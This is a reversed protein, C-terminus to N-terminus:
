TTKCWQAFELEARLGTFTHTRITDAFPLGAKAMDNIDKPYERPWIVVSEHLRVATRMLRVVERNRPENDWCFVLPTSRPLVNAGFAVQVAGYLDSGMAALTNPLFFSDLPGEVVTVPQTTNLRDLGFIKLPEHAWRFTVYTKEFIARVQAGFWTGDPLRLPMVLYLVDDDVKIAKDHGVLPTLWTRASDTAYLHEFTSAPLKRNEVFHYVDWLRNHLAKVAPLPQVHISLDSDRLIFTPAKTVTDPAPQVPREDRLGELLYEDYLRRSMRKLLASFPLAVSCNHCKFILTQNKPFIYGRAKSQVKESDGCLPCRFNFTHAHKQSFRDLQPSLLRLYKEDRWLSM